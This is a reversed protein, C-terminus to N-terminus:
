VTALGVADIWVHIHSRQLVKSERNPGEEQSKCCTPITHASILFAVQFKLFGKLFKQSFFFLTHNFHKM